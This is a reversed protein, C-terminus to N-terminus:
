NSFRRMRVNLILGFGALTSVLSSGGYSMLPLTLGKVPAFGASMAINYLVQFAFGSIIGVVLFAGARDRALRAADVSRVLVFLYLGLAVLVGVFGFEEAFSSFVFDNHAEPMFGYGSQTGEGFGKGLLGGSGVTVKAQIQQYGAGRPDNAPDLFTEIRGRQYDELGYMWVVPTLLLGAVTAIALWRLPLGAVFIVGLLVPVLTVATGLDPQRYILLAPIAVLVGGILLQGATQAGRRSEGYYAALVLAMVLRAFESPQLSVGSFAIWRRAGGRVVGFQWVAILGVILLVYFVLSRDTLTRYDVLLCVALAALGVPLAYVQTWFERGPQNAAADWTVSYVTLVGVVCLAVVAGLLPWDVYPLLRRDVIM